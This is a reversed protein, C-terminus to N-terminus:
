VQNPDAQECKICLDTARNTRYKLGCGPCTVDRLLGKRPQEGPRLEPPLSAFPDSTCSCEAGSDEGSTMDGKPAAGSRNAM